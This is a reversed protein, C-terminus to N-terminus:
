RRISGNDAPSPPGRRDRRWLLLAGAAALGTVAVAGPVLPLGGSGPASGVPGPSAQEDDDGRDDERGDRDAPETTTSTEDPATTAVSDPPREADSPEVPLPVALAIVSGAETTPLAGIEVREGGFQGQVILGGNSAWLTDDILVAGGDWWGEVTTMTALTDAAVIEARPSQEGGGLVLLREDDLWRVEWSEGEIARSTLEDGTELDLLWLRSIIDTDGYEAELVAVQPTDTSGADPPGAALTVYGRYDDDTERLLEAVTRVTDDPDIVILREGPDLYTQAVVRDGALLPRAAVPLDLERGPEDISDLSRVEYVSRDNEWREIVLDIRNGLPDACAVSALTSENLLDGLPVEQRVSLDALDVVQARGDDVFLATQGGPCTTVHPVWTFSFRDDYGILQGEADLLALGGRDFRGPVALVAEGGPLNQPALFSRVVEADLTSCLGGILRGDREEAFIAVEDGLGIEFGCSGGNGPAAIEITDGDLHPEPDGDFWEAVTFTALQEDWGDDSPDPNESSGQYTGIFGIDSNEIFWSVEAGACSCAAAPRASGSILTAAVIALMVLGAAGRSVRGRFGM